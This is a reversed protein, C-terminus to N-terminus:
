PDLFKATPLATAAKRSGFKWISLSAGHILYCPETGLITGACPQVTYLDTRHSSGLRYPSEIATDLRASDPLPTPDSWLQIWIYVTPGARPQCTPVGSSYSQLDKKKMGNNSDEEPGKRNSCHKKFIPYGSYLQVCLWPSTYVVLKRLLMINGNNGETENKVCGLM